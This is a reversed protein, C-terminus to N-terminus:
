RTTGGDFAGTGWTLLRPVDGALLPNPAFDPDWTQWVGSLSAVASAPTRTALHGAHLAGSSHAILGTAPPPQLLDHYKRGTRMWETVQALTV